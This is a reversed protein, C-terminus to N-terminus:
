AGGEATDTTSATTTTIATTTTTSAATRGEAPLRSANEYAELTLASGAPGWAVIEPLPEGAHLVLLDFSVRATVAPDGASVLAVEVHTGAAGDSRTFLGGVEPEAASRWDGLGVYEIGNRSDGTIELLRRRDDEAFARAWEDIRERLTTSTRSTEYAASWDLPGTEDADADTVFPELSPLAGLAPGRGEDEVLPVALVFPGEPTGVLFRHTEVTREAGEGVPISAVEAAMPVIWSHPIPAPRPEEPGLTAVSDAPARGADTGVGRAVPIPLAEGDLYSQAVAAADAQHRPEVSPSTGAPRNAVAALCGVPGSVAALAVCAVIVRFRRTFRRPDSFERPIATRQLAM